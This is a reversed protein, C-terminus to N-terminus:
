QYSLIGTQIHIYTIYLPVNSTNPYSVGVLPVNNGEKEYVVIKPLLQVLFQTTFM